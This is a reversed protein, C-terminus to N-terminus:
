ALVPPARASYAALTPSHHNSSHYTFLEFSSALTPPTYHSAGLASAMGSYSLCKECLPSHPAKDQQQSSPNVDAYHSIEHVAAGQQGLGFMFALAFTLILRRLM